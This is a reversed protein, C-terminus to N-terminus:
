LKKGIKDWTKNFEEIIMDANIIKPATKLNYANVQESLFKILKRTQDINIYCYTSYEYGQEIEIDIYNDSDLETFEIKGSSDEKIIM